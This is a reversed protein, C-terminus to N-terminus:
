KHMENSWLGNLFFNLYGVEFFEYKKMVKFNVGAKLEEIKMRLKRGNCKRIEDPLLKPPLSFKDRSSSKKKSIVVPRNCRKGLYGADCRCQNVTSTEYCKGHKCWHNTVSPTCMKERNEAEEQKMQILDEKPIPVPLAM